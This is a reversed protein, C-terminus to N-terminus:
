QGGNEPENKTPNTPQNRGTEIRAGNGRAPEKERTNEWVRAKGKYSHGPVRQCRGHLKM